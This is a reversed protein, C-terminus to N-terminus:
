VEDPNSLYPANRQQIHLDFILPVRGQDAIYNYQSDHVKHVHVLGSDKVQLHIKTVDKNIHDLNLIAGNIGILNFIKSGTSAFAGLLGSDDTSLCMGYYTGPTRIYLRYGPGIHRFYLILDPTANVPVAPRLGLFHSDDRTQPRGTFFGGSVFSSAVIAPKGYMVDLFHLLRTPTGIIAIFSKQRDTTM